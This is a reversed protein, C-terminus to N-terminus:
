ESEPGIVLVRSSCESCVSENERVTFTKRCVTCTRGVQMQVSASFGITASVGIMIKNLFQMAFDQPTSDPDLQVEVINKAKAIKRAGEQLGLPSVVIGGEAGTDTITYAVEGVKAQNLRSTTYRRCEVIIFGQNGERVGKADIEWQTGSQRGRVKQKGEVRSLGFDAAFRDLLDAAVKEYEKWKPDM